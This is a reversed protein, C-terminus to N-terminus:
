WLESRLARRARPASAVLHADDIVLGRRLIFLEAIGITASTETADRADAGEVTAGVAVIGVTAPARIDGLAV